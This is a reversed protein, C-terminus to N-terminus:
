EQLGLDEEMHAILAQMDEPPEAKYVCYRNDDPHQIGLQRAHLAQRTFATMLAGLKFPVSNQQNRRGYVADGLLPHGLHAMHVRIQHTRGTELKVALLACGRFREIVRYHTRAPKGREVVAMKKRDGPHRGIPEDVTGDDPIDGIAVALYERSVTRAQLQQVLNAHAKLTRAVVCLGTTDKDLRHVIGARPVQRLEPELHLLGNMLTGTRNGPAPHMVCDASKNVIYFQEDTHVIDIEMPEAVIHAAGNAWTDEWSNGSEDAPLKLELREGGILKDRTRRSQGDVSLYGATIWSQLRGRSYDSFLKAAVADLRQGAANLPVDFSQAESEDNQSPNESSM